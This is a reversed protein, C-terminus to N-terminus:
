SEKDLSYVLWSTSSTRVCMNGASACSVPDGATGGNLTGTADPPYVNLANAGDNNVIVTQGIPTNSPLKVGTNVATTAVVNVFSVLQLATALNTGTATLGTSVSLIPALGVKEVSQEALLKAPEAPIGTGMLNTAYYNTAM